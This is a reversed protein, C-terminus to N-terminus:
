RPPYRIRRPWGSTLKQQQWRATRISIRNGRYSAMAGYRGLPLIFRCLLRGLCSHNGQSSRYPQVGPRRPQLDPHRWVTAQSFIRFNSTICGGIEALDAADMDLVKDTDLGDLSLTAIIAAMIEVPTLKDDQLSRQITALDRGKPSRFKYTTGSIQCTLTGSSDLTAKTKTM